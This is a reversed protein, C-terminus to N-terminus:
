PKTVDPTGIPMDATTLTIRPVNNIFHGATTTFNVQEGWVWTVTGTDGPAAFPAFPSPNEVAWQAADLWAIFQAEIDPPLDLVFGSADPHEEPLESEDANPEEDAPYDETYEPEPLVEQEPPEEEPLDEYEPLQPYEPFDEVEPLVEDFDDTLEFSDEAPGIQRIQSASVPHVFTILMISALLMALIRNKM